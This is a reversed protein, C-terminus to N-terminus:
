AWSERGSPSGAAASGVVGIALAIRKPASPISSTIGVMVTTVAKM